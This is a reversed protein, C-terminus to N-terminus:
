AHAEKQKEFYERYGSVAFAPVYTRAYILNGNGATGIKKYFAYFPVAETGKRDDMSFIYELGVFDYGHFDVKNQEAMCFPCTHGGFVYGSYLLREAEEVSIRKVYKGAEYTYECDARTMRYSIYTRVYRSESPDDRGSGFYVAICDTVPVNRGANLPHDSENYFYVALSVYSGGNYGRVIRMDAFEVEFLAFLEDRLAELSAALEEDTRSPDAEVPVGGVTLTGDEKSFINVYCRNEYQGMSVDYGNESPMEASLYADGRFATEKKVEFAPLTEGSFRSFFRAAYDILENEDTERGASLEQYVAIYDENPIPLIQLEDASPVYIKEYSSTAGYFEPFMSAVEAATYVPDDYVPVGDRRLLLFMAISLVVCFCAAAAYRGLRRSKERRRAALGDKHAVYERVLAFDIHNLGENWEQTKM